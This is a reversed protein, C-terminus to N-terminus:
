ALMRELAGFQIRIEVAHATSVAALLAVICRKV